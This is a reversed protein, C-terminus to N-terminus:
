PRGIVELDSAYWDGHNETVVMESGELDTVTDTWGHEKHKVRDDIQPTGFEM